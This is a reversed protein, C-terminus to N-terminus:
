LNSVRFVISIRPLLSTLNPLYRKSTIPSRKLTNLTLVMVSNFEFM